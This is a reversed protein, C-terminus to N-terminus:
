KKIKKKLESDPIFDKGIHHDRDKSRNHEEKVMAHGLTGDKARVAAIDLGDPRDAKNNMQKYAEIYDSENEPSKRNKVLRNEFKSM